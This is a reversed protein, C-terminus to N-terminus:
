HQQGSGFQYLPKWDNGFGAWLPAWRRSAAPYAWSSPVSLLRSKAMRSSTAASVVLTGGVSLPTTTSAAGGDPYGFTVTGNSGVSQIVFATDTAPYITAANFTLNGATAMYGLLSRSSTFFQAPLLRIDGRSNFTAQSINQLYFVASLDIQDANLTLTADSFATHGSLSPLAGSGSNFSVGNIAIYPATASLSANNTTSQGGTGIPLNSPGQGGWIFNGRNGATIGLTNIVISNRLTLSVQGAFGVTGNNGNLILNDFGSGDLTDAGFLLNGAPIKADVAQRFAGVPQLSPVFTAFSFTAGADSVAQATDEVLILNTSSTTSSDGTISLTGGAAQPAGPKGILTGEFLLGTMGAINVQGADSWVPQRDLVIQGGGFHGGPVFRAVDFAGSAGSVNIVAGPAVLIPAWDDALSVTGGAM